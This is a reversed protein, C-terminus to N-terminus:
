DLNKLMWVDRNDDYEFFTPQTFTTPEDKNELHEMANKCALKVCGHAIILPYQPYFLSETLAQNIGALAREEFAILTEADSLLIEEIKDKIYQFFGPGEPANAVLERAKDQCQSWDGFRREELDAIIFIPIHNLVSSVMQATELCRELPSVFICSISYNRLIDIANNVQQQGKTNLPLDQPGEVLMEKNWNTAGHRLFYFSTKTIPECSDSVKTTEAHLSDISCVNCAVCSVALFFLSKLIYSSNM